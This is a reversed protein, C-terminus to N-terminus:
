PATERHRRMVLPRAILIGLAMALLTPAGEVSALTLVGGLLVFRLPILAIAWRTPGGGALLCANWWVVSFYVYGVGVGGALHLAISWIPGMAFPLPSM